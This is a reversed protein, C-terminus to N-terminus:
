GIEKLREEVDALEMEIFSVGSWTRNVDALHDRAQQVFAREEAPNGKARELRGMHGLAVGYLMAAHADSSDDRYLGRRYTLAESLMEEAPQLKDLKILALGMLDEASAFDRIAGRDAPNRKVLDLRLLFNPWFADLAQGVDDNNFLDVGIRDFAEALSGLEADTKGKPLWLEWFDMANQAPDRLHFQDLLTLATSRVADSVAM